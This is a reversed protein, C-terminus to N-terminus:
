SLTNSYALIVTAFILIVVGIGMIQLPKKAGKWEGARIAWYNSFILSLGVFVPWGIITIAIAYLSFIIPVIFRRM